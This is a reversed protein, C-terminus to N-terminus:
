KKQKLYQTKCSDSCFCNGSRDLFKVNGINKFCTKCINKRINLKVPNNSKNIHIGNKYFYNNYGILNSTLNYNRYRNNLESNNILYQNINNYDYIYHDNYNDENITKNGKQSDYYYDQSYQGNYYNTDGCKHYRKSYRKNSDQMKPTNNKIESRKNNSLLTKKIMKGNIENSKDRSTKGNNYNNNNFSSNINQSWYDSINNFSSFKGKPIYNRINIINKNNKKYDNASSLYDKKNQNRLYENFNGSSKYERINTTKNELHLDSKNQSFFKIKNNNIEIKKYNKEKEISQLNENENGKKEKEEKEEKEKKENENENLDDIKDFEFDNIVKLVEERLQKTNKLAIPATDIFTNETFHKISDDDHPINLEKIIYNKCWESCYNKGKIQYYNDKWVPRKCYDCADKENSYLYSICSLSCVIQDGITKLKSSYIERYCVPCQIM